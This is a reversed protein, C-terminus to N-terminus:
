SEEWPSVIYAPLRRKHVINSSLTSNIIAHISKRALVTIPNVPNPNAKDESGKNVSNRVGCSATGSMVMHIVNM